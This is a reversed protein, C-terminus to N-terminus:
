TEPCQHHMPRCRQKVEYVERRKGVSRRKGNVKDIRMSTHMAMRWSMHKVNRRTLVFTIHLAETKGVRPLSTNSSCWAMYRAICLPMRTVGRKAIGM